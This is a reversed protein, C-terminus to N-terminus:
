VQPETILLRSEKGLVWTTAWLMQLELEISGVCEEAERPVLYVHHMAMCTSLCKWVNFFIKKVIFHKPKPFQPQKHVHLVPVSVNGHPHPLNFCKNGYPPLHCLYPVHGTLQSAPKETRMTKPWFGITRHGWLSTSVLGETHLCPDLARKEEM